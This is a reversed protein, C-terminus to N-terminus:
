IHQLIDNICDTLDKKKKKNEEELIKLEEDNITYEIKKHSELIWDEKLQRTILLLEQLSKVVNKSHKHVVQIQEIADISSIEHRKANINRLLNRSTIDNSHANTDIDEDDSYESYEDEDESEENENHQVLEPTNNLQSYKLIEEYSHLLKGAIKNIIELEIM